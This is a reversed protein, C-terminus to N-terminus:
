LKVMSVSRNSKLLALPGVSLDFPFLLFNDFRNFLFERCDAVVLDFVVFNIWVDWIPLEFLLSFSLKKLVKYFFRTFRSIFCSVIIGSNDFLVLRYSIQIYACDWFYFAICIKAFYDVAFM